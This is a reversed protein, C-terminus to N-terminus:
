RIRLAQGAKILYPVTLNNLQILVDNKIGYKIAIGSITDGPNVIHVNKEKRDATTSNAVARNIAKYSVPIYLKQGERIRHSNAIGNVSMLISMNIGFRSCITSLNDGHQIYYIQYDSASQSKLEDMNANLMAINQSPLRVKYGLSESPVFPSRLSPNYKMFDDVSLGSYKAVLRVPSTFQLAIYNYDDTCETYEIGFKELNNMIYVSAVFRPVYHQTEAPIVRKKVIDYFEKSGTRRIARKVNGGGYNYASLALYWDGFVGYLLSLYKAAYECSVIPDLREDVWGNRKMGMWTATGPMFQWMGAAGVRSYARYNFGSEIIPLYVLEEPLDYKKIIERMAPVYSSARKLSKLLFDRKNVTLYKIEKEVLENLILPFTNKLSKTNENTNCNSNVLNEPPLDSSYENLFSYECDEANKLFYEEASNELTENIDLVPEDINAFLFTANIFFLLFIVDLKRFLDREM